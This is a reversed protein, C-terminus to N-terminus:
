GSQVGPMGYEGGLMSMFRMGAQGIQNPMYDPSAKAAKLAMSGLDNQEVTTIGGGGMGGGGAGMTANKPHQRYYENIADFNVGYRQSINAWESKPADSAHMLQGKVRIIPDVRYQEHKQEDELLSRTAPDLSAVAASEADRQNARATAMKAAAEDNRFAAFFRAKEDTTAKRGVLDKFVADLQSDTTARGTLTVVQGGGAYTQMAIRRQDLADLRQRQTAEQLWQGFQLVDVKIQGSENKKPKKGTAATKDQASAPPLYRQRPNKAQVLQLYGITQELATQDDAGWAGYVPNYGSGVIGSGRLYHQLTALAQLREVRDIKFQPGGVIEAKHKGAHKPAWPFLEIAGNPGKRYYLQTQDSRAMAVLAEATMVVRKQVMQGNERVTYPAFINSMDLLVSRMVDGNSSPPASLSYGGSAVGAPMSSPPTGKPGAM